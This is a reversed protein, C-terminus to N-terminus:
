TISGDYSLDTTFGKSSAPVLGNARSPSTLRRSAQGPPPHRVIANSLTGWEPESRRRDHLAKPDTYREMRPNPVQRPNFGRPPGSGGAFTRHPSTLVFSVARTPPLCFALLARVAGLLGASKEPFSLALFVM